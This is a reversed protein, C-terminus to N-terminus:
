NKLRYYVYGETICKAIYLNDYKNGIDGINRSEYM